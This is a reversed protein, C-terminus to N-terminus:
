QDAEGRTRTASSTFGQEVALRDRDAKVLRQMSANFHQIGLECGIFRRGHKIAAEGTTGGGMFTDLVVDGPRSSATIIHEMMALPKECPHKGPYFQVPECVWADTYWDRGDLDFYRRVPKSRHNLYCNTEQKIDDFSRPLHEGLISQLTQYQAKNPLKWQSRGFWHGAMKNGMARNIDEQTKGSALLGSRLYDIVPACADAEAQHRLRADSYSKSTAFIIRETATAFRRLSARCHRKHMGSPKIWVIHNEVCFHRAIVAETAAALKPGAFLYLSGTPKLVRACRKVVEDLWELFHERSSWQNDWDDSKVRFYPPDTAILDVSSAPMEALVDLCDRNHLTYM